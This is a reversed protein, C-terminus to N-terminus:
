DWLKKFLNIFHALRYFKFHYLKLIPREYVIDDWHLIYVLKNYLGILPIDLDKDIAIGDFRSHFTELGHCHLM